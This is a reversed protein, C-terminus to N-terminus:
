NTADTKFVLWLLDLDRHVNRVFIRTDRPGTIKYYVETTQQFCNHLEMYQKNRPKRRHAGSWNLALTDQQLHLSSIFICDSSKTEKQTKHKEANTDRHTQAETRKHRQANADRHM